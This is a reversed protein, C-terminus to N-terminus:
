DRNRNLNFNPIEFKEKIDVNIERNKIYFSIPKQDYGITKWGAIDLTDKNVFLQLSSNDKPNTFEITLLNDQVSINKINKIQKIIKDKDLITAFPSNTVRYYYVRNYKRKIIALTNNKIVVEKRDNGEYRCILKKPYSLFCKGNEVLEENNQTFDFKINNITRFKTIFKEAFDENNKSQASFSIFFFLSFFINKKIM